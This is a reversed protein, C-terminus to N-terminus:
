ITKEYWWWPHVPLWWPNVPFPPHPGTVYILSFEDAEKACALFVAFIAIQPDRSSPIMLKFQHALSLFSFHALVYSPSNAVKEMSRFEPDSM